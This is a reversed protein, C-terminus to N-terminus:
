YKPLWSNLKSPAPTPNPPNRLSELEEKLLRNEELLEAIRAEFTEKESRTLPAPPRAAAIQAPGPEPPNPEPDPMPNAYHTIKIHRSRVLSQDPKVDPQVRQANGFHGLQTLESPFPRSLNHTVGAEIM